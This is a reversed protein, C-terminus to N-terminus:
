AFHGRGLERLRAEVRDREEESMGEFAHGPLSEFPATGPAAALDYTAGRVAERRPGCPRLRTVHDYAAGLTDFRTGDGDGVWYLLAIAAAPARGLGATCHVYAVGGAALASALAAAAHPLAARLSTPCFDKAPTAARRVGLAAAAAAVEGADVGWERGDHAQQLSVIHTVGERALLAVDAESAPHTGVRVRDAVATFYLGRAPDYRWLDGSSAWGMKAAMRANYAAVDDRSPPRACAVPPAAHPRLGARLPRSPAPPRPALTAASPPIPPARQCRGLRARGHLLARERDEGQKEGDQRAPSSPPPRRM